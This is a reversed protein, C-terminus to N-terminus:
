HLLNRSKYIFDRKGYPFPAIEKKREIFYDASVNYFDCLKVLDRDERLSRMIEKYNM